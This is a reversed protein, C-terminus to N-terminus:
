VAGYNGNYLLGGHQGFSGDPKIGDVRVGPQISIEANIRGYAESILSTNSSLLALDIGIKAVDLINAGTLFTKGEYFTDYARASITDCGDVQTSTLSANFLLCAQGVLNPVLIVQASSERSSSPRSHKLSSECQLVLQSGLFRSYWVPVCQHWRSRSM